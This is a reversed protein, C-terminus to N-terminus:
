SLVLELVDSVITVSYTSGKLDQDTFMLRLRMHITTCATESSPPVSEGHCAFYDGVLSRFGDVTLTPESSANRVCSSM